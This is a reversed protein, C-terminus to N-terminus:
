IPTPMVVVAGVRMEEVPTVPVVKTQSPQGLTTMKEHLVGNVKPFLRFVIVHLSISRTSHVERWSPVILASYIEELVRRISIPVKAM